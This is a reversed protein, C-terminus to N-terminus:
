AAGPMPPRVPELIFGERWSGELHIPAVGALRYAGTEGAQLAAGALGSVLAQLEDHSCTAPVDLAFIERLLSLGTQIDSTRAMRKGPLVKLSLARWAATPFSEIALPRTGHPPSLEGLRPWGREELADFVGIAFEFFPAYTCPTVTGPLGTKGPTRLQRECERAFQTGHSPHKWGQPGDLLLLDASCERCLSICAEAVRAPEPAVRGGPFAVFRVELRRGAPQLVCVGFDAYDRYALDVSVIAM